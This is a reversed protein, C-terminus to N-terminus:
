ALRVTKKFVVLRGSTISTVMASDTHICKLFWSFKKFIFCLFKVRPPKQRPPKQGPTKQGLVLYSETKEELLM